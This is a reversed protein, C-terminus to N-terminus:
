CWTLCEVIVGAQASAFYITVPHENPEYFYDGSKLTMYPETPTAVKGAEFAFRVDYATRCQFEFGFNANLTLAYETNAQTLTTNYIKPSTIGRM